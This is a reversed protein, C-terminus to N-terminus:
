CHKTLRDKRVVGDKSKSIKYLQGQDCIVDRKGKKLAAIAAEAAGQTYYVSFDNLEISV